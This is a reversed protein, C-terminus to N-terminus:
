EIEIEAPVLFSADEIKKLDPLNINEVKWGRHRVIGKFPPNGVVNGTLRIKDPNFSEEIEIESSEENDLLPKLELYKSLADKCGKHISRVAAGIDDDNYDSLNENLFDLFRGEEQLVSLIHLFKRKELEPDIKSSQKPTSIETQSPILSITKKVFARLIIWSIFTFILVVIGAFPIIFFSIPDELNIISYFFEQYAQSDISQADIASAKDFIISSYYYGGFFILGFFILSVFFQTWFIKRSISKLYFNKKNIM